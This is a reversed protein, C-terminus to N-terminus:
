CPWNLCELGLAQIFGDVDGLPQILLNRDNAAEVPFTYARGSFKAICPNLIKRSIPPSPKTIQDDGIFVTVSYHDDSAKRSEVTGRRMENM